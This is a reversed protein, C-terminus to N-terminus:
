SSLVYSNSVSFTIFDIKDRTLKRSVVSYVVDCRVHANRECTRNLNMRFENQKKWKKLIERISRSGVDPLSLMNFWHINRLQLIRNFTCKTFIQWTITETFIQKRNCVHTVQIDLWQLSIHAFWFTVYILDYNIKSIKM